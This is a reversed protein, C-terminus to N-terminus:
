STDVDEEKLGRVYGVFEADGPKRDTFDIDLSYSAREEIEGHFQMLYTGDDLTWRLRVDYSDNIINRKFGFTCGVIRPVEEVNAAAELLQGNRVLKAEESETDIEQEELQAELEAVRERLELVESLLPGETSTTPLGLTNVPGTNSSVTHRHGSSTRTITSAKEVVPSSSTHDHPDTVSDYWTSNEVNLIGM